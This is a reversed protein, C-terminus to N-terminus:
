GIMDPIPELADGQPHSTRLTVEPLTLSLVLALIGFPLAWVYVTRISEALASFIAHPYPPMLAKIKAYSFTTLSTTAKITAASVDVRAARLQGALNGPFVNTFLAGFVATGFCGGISRFFNAGATAAGLDKFEVANQVATVLIQMVLGIGVGLIFMYVGMVYASTHLTITGLLGLGVCMIGTGAIPFGRYKWGRSVLNGALISASLLGAMLPLIRLGSFTPSVGKADQMFLPLFVMAGFMAFGVVFSIASASSFVRNRFLRPSLIPEAVFHEVVIFGATMLFGGILLLLGEGGFWGFSTGGLSTYLVLASASLTL